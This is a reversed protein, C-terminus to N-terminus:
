RTMQPQAGRCRPALISVAGHELRNQANEDSRGGAVPPSSQFRLLGSSPQNIEASRGGAVPPSSQFMESVRYTLELRLSRGGAVPPSSQFEDQGSFYAVSTDSRGGAVPPSSQFRYIAAVEENSILQAGRCRPALISVVVHDHHQIRHVAAGGPLPPRPNFCTRSSSRFRISTLQAGRCRPALISVDLDIDATLKASWTAGGPLPPRPNFCNSPM